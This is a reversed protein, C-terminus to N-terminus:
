SQCHKVGGKTSRLAGIIKRLAQTGKGLPVWESTGKAATVHACCGSKGGPCVSQSSMVQCPKFHNSWAPGKWSVELLLSSKASAIQFTEMCSKITYVWRGQMHYWLLQRMEIMIM